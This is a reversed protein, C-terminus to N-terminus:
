IPAAYEPKLITYTLAKISRAAYALNRRLFGSTKTAKSSIDSIYQGWDMNETITICLYKASQDFTKWPKSTYHTTM